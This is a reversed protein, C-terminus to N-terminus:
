RHRHLLYPWKSCGNRVLRCVKGCLPNVPVEQAATMDWYDVCKGVYHTWQSRRPPLWIEIIQVSEWMIPESPGGPRCDYRLLGCVKGCLPNVPVEQAATMDWYDACKGVYHTWQSRRPPLWIEIIWVSEWMIPESPGGPRCDYRLLRCVKGCLPNVPVEQAATMDWYDVCKGVYHTWQSRRPSLCKERIWVSEWMIPENPGGPRCANRTLFCDNVGSSITRIISDVKKPLKSM